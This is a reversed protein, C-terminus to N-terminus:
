LDITISYDPFHRLGIDLRLAEAGLQLVIRTIDSGVTLMPIAASIRPIDSGTFSLQVRGDELQRSQFQPDRPLWISVGPRIETSKGLYPALLKRVAFRSGLVAGFGSRPQMHQVLEEAITM